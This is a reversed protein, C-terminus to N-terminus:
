LKINTIFGEAFVGEKFHEILVHQYVTKFGFYGKEELMVM